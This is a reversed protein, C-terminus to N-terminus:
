EIFFGSNLFTSIATLEELSANASVHANACQCYGSCRSLQLPQMTPLGMTQQMASPEIVTDHSVTYCVIEHSLGTGAGGGVGGICSPHSTLATSITNYVTSAIGGVIASPSATVAASVTNTIGGIMANFIQGASAQQNVGLPYNVAMSGGYSGIIEGGSVLQYAVAGDPCTLSWNVTISSQEALDDSSLAVMGVLPLYIYVQECYSRRWDGNAHQWPIGVTASGKLPKASIPRGQVGTNFNGLWIVPSGAGFAPIRGSDIPIWVCSRICSPANGYANGLIDNQTALTAYGLMDEASLPAAGGQLFQNARQTAQNVFEDAGGSISAILNGLAGAGMAYMATGQKGIVTIVYCGDGFFGPDASATSVSANRLVPIRSDVLWSGGSVSSYSVYQTSELITDKYTALVDIQCSARWLPKENVWDRVFFYKHWVPVYIYDYDPWSNADELDLLFQPNNLSTHDKLTCRFLRGDETAPRATSNERKRFKFTYVDFM